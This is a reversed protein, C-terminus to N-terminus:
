LRELEPGVIQCLDVKGDLAFHSTTAVAGQAVGKAAIPTRIDSQWCELGAFLNSQEVVVKLQSSRYM